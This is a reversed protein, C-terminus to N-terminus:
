RTLETKGYIAFSGTLVTAAGDPQGGGLSVSYAGPVIVRNSIEKM